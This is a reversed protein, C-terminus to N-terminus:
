LSTLCSGTGVNWNSDAIAIFINYLPIDFYYYFHNPLIYKKQEKISWWFNKEWNGKYKQFPYVYHINTTAKTLEQVM